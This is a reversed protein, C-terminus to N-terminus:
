ICQKRYCAEDFRVEALNFCGEFTGSPIVKVQPGVRVRTIGSKREEAVEEGQYLFVGDERLDVRECERGRANGDM